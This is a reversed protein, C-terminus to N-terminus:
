DNTYLAAYKEYSDITHMGQRLYGPRVQAWTFSGEDEVFFYNFGADRLLVYRESTEDYGSWSGIDGGGPMILIDTTGVVPVAITEWDKVDEAMVQLESGYSTLAYSNSGIHWGTSRLSGLIAQVTKKNESIIVDSETRGEPAGPAAEGADEETGGEILDTGPVAYNESADEIQVTSIINEDKVIQYGLLGRHGTLGLIGRAGKYSFDPHEAIFEEVIPVVDVSGRAENGNEDTYSCMIKGSSERVMSDPHGDYDFSYSVDQQSIILPKRGQPVMVRAAKMGGEASETLSYVDILVYGRDYLDQLIGRFQSVTLPVPDEEESAALASRVLDEGIPSDAKEEVAAEEYVTEEEPVFYDLTLVPFSLHLVEEVSYFSSNEIEERIEGGGVICVMDAYQKETILM